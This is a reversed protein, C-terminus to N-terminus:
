PTDLSGPWIRRRRIYYVDGDDLEEWAHLLLEAEQENTCPMAYLAGFNAIMHDHDPYVSVSVADQSYVINACTM